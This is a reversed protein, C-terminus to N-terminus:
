TSRFIIIAPIAFAAARNQAASDSPDAIAVVQAQGVLTRWAM